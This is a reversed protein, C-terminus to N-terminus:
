TTQRSTRVYAPSGPSDCEVWNKCAGRSDGTNKGINLYCNSRENRQTIPLKEGTTLPRKPAPARAAVRTLSFDHGFLLRPAKHGGTTFSIFSHIFSKTGTISAYVGPKDPSHDVNKSTFEYQM